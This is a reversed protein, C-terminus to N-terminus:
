QDIALAAGVPEATKGDSAYLQFRGDELQKVQMSGTNGGRNQAVEARPADGVAAPNIEIAIFTNTGAATFKAGFSRNGKPLTIEAEVKQGPGTQQAMTGLMRARISVPLRATAVANALLALTANRKHSFKQVLPRLRPPVHNPEAHSATCLALLIPIPLLLRSLM